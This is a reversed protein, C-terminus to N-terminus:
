IPMVSAPNRAEAAAATDRDRGSTSGSLKRPAAASGVAITSTVTASVNTVSTIPSSAGFRMAMCRVSLQASSTARGSSMRDTIERGATHSSPTEVSMTTRSAPPSGFACRSSTVVSSIRSMTAAWCSKEASCRVMMLPANSIASRIRRSIRTGRRSTTDRGVPVLAWSASRM